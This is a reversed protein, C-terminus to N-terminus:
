RSGAALAGLGERELLELTQPPFARLQLIRGERGSAWTAASQLLLLGSSDIFRLRGGDITLRELDALAEPRSIWGLVRAAEAGEFDEALVIELAGGERGMRTRRQDLPAALEELRRDWESPSSPLDLWRDLRLLRLLRATRGPVRSLLLRRGSSRSAQALRALAGLDLSSLWSCESLDLVLIGERAVSELPACFAEVDAPTALASFRALTAGQAKLGAPDPAPSGPSKGGPWCRVLALRFLITGLFLLNSSYRKFLRRPQSCLRWFWEMALRQVWRPARTQVGAVFDLSAGIGLAVPAGLRHLNIRIWKDQKPAGFAVLLVQPDRKSIHASTGVHDMELLKAQPPSSFGAVLLGPSREGLLRMAEAAVGEKGGLAYISLGHDRAFPGLRVVLDSGAVRGQLKPGFFRSFFVPPWGDAVVLDADLHIRQMEPDRWAQMIFDLNSTVVQAARGSRARSAIWALTEETSVNHVPIGFLFLVPPAAVPPVPLSRERGQPVTSPSGRELGGGAGVGPAAGGPDPPAPGAPPKM